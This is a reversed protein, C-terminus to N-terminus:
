CVIRTGYGPNFNKPSEKTLSGEVRGRLISGMCVFCFSAMTKRGSMMRVAWEDHGVLLHDGSATRSNSNRQSFKKRIGFTADGPGLFNGSEKAAGFIGNNIVPDGV